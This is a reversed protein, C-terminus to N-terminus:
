FKPKPGSRKIPIVNRPEAKATVAQAVQKAVVMEIERGEHKSGPCAVTLRGGAPIDTIRNSYESLKNRREDLNNGAYILDAREVGQHKYFVAADFPVKRGIGEANEAKVGRLVFADNKVRYAVALDDGKAMSMVETIANEVKKPSLESTGSAERKGVTVVSVEEAGLLMGLRVVQRSQNEVNPMAAKPKNGTLENFNPFVEDKVGKTERVARDTHHFIDGVKNITDGVGDTDRSAADKARSIDYVVNSARDALDSIAGFDMANAKRPELFDVVAKLPPIGGGNQYAMIAKDFGSIHGETLLLAAGLIVPRLHSKYKKTFEPDKETKKRMANTMTKLTEEEYRLELEHLYSENNNLFSAHSKLRENLLRM